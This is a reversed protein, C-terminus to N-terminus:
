HPAPQPKPPDTEAQRPASPVKGEFMRRLIGPTLISLPNVSIKPEDLNGKAEYTVGVIGEGPRSVLVNGVLPIAGLISNLGYIPAVAGRLDIQNARRDIYGEGSLGVSPGNAHADHINFVDNSATFPLQLKDIVIGSGRMLDLLGGLSGASFLRAFFPQNEVKFDRIELTGNFDPGGKKGVPPMKAAVTLRGGSINGLGFVGKLLTGADNASVSLRRGDSVPAISATVSASKSLGTALSLSQISGGIMDADVSLPALVTNQKLQMRDLKAAIHYRDTSSEEKQGTGNDRRGLATGDASRGRILVEAGTRPDRAYAIAFDNIPGARLAPIDARRLTGDPAFALTGQASLGAGAITLDASSVAGKEDLKALIQATAATGPEKRYSIAGLAIVAPTLNVNIQATRIEGRRGQLNASLGVSGTVFDGMRVKFAERAQEDLTGNVKLRTTIDGKGDFVELWEVAFPTARYIVTGSAHLHKNDVDFLVNGDSLRTNEGLSLALGKVDAKVHMPIQDIGIDKVMPVHFEADVLATGTTQVPDIHFRTPYHLPKEDLIKLLDPMSGALTVAIDGIAGHKHLKPITVSAKRVALRGVRADAVDVHFTDGTLVGVGNAHTVLSMGQVYNVSADKVPITLHIASEPLSPADLEGAGINVEVSAPGVRGAPMNKAIWSRAGGGVKLPWYHVLDRVSLSNIKGGLVIGPSKNDALVIHGQLEGTLARGSLLAQEITFTANGTDYNGRLHLPGLAVPTTFAEPTAIMIHDASVDLDAAALSGAQGFKLNGSGQLHATATDGQLTAQDILIHGTTGDYRGVLDFDKIVLPSGLGGIKGKARLGFDASRLRNGHEVVISASLDNTLDFPRLFAFHPSNRSLAELSLGTISLDGTIDGAEQPLKISALFHAPKGTIEVDAEIDAKLESNPKSATNSVEVHASPAVLFLGSNQDLFALRARRVAFRDLSSAGHGSNELAKRIRELVDDGTENGNMGLRLAGTKTRVLALQVGVLAIRRIQIDGGLLAKAALGIEAKPAQAIVRQQSDLVRAGVIILNVRGEDQSWELAADDYRVALGPVAHLLSDRLRESFPGLSVPGIAFRLVVGAVFFVGVALLALTALSVHHVHHRRIRIRRLRKFLRAILSPSPTNLQSM